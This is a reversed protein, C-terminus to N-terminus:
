GLLEKNLDLLTFLPRVGCGRRQTRPDHSSPRIRINDDGPSHPPVRGSVGSQYRSSLASGPVCFRMQGFYTVGETV